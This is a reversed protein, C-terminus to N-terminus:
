LWFILTASLLLPMLFILANRRQDLIGIRRAILICTLEFLITVVGPGYPKLYLDIVDIINKPSSFEISYIDLYGGRFTAARYLGILPLKLLGYATTGCIFPVALTMSKRTACSCTVLLAFIGLNLWRKQLTDWFLYLRYLSGLHSWANEYEHMELSQISWSYESRIRQEFFSRQSEATRVISEAGSTESCIRDWELAYIAWSNFISTVNKGTARSLATAFRHLRERDSLNATTNLGYKEVYTRFTRFVELECRKALHEIMFCSAGYAGNRLTSNDYTTDNWRWSLVYNGGHIKAARSAQHFLSNRDDYANKTFNARKTLEISLVEAMGEYYYIPLLGIDPTFVHIIEHFLLRTASGGKPILHQLRGDIFITANHSYAVGEVTIGLTWSGIKTGYPASVLTMRKTPKYSLITFAESYAHDFLEQIRAISQNSLLRSVFLDGQKEIVKTFPSERDEADLLKYAFAPILRIGEEIRFTIEKRSKLHSINLLREQWFVETDLPLRISVKGPGLVLFEHFGGFYYAGRYFVSGDRWTCTLTTAATLSFILHTQSSYPDAKVSYSLNEPQVHTIISAPPILLTCKGHVLPFLHAEVNIDGSRNIDLIWETSLVANGTSLQAYAFGVNSTTSFLLLAFTVSRFSSTPLDM